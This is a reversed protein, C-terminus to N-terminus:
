QRPAPAVQQSQEQWPKPEVPRRSAYPATTSRYRVTAVRATPDSPEPGVFPTAPAACGALSWMALGAGIMAQFAARQRWIVAHSARLHVSM